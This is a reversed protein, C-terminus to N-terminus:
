SGEEATRSFVAERARILIMARKLRGAFDRRTEENGRGDVAWEKSEELAELMPLDEATGQSELADLALRLSDKTPPSQAVQHILRRSAEIPYRSLVSVAAQKSVSKQSESLMSELCELDSTLFDTLGDRHFVEHCAAIADIRSKVPKEEDRAYDYLAQHGAAQPLVALGHFGKQRLYANGEWHSMTEVALALGWNPRNVELGALCGFKVVAPVNSDSLVGQLTVRDQESGERSLAHSAVARLEPKQMEALVKRWLELPGDIESRMLLIFAQNTPYRKPPKEECPVPFSWPGKWLQEILYPQGKTKDKLVPAWGAEWRRAGGLPSADWTECETRHEMRANLVRAMLGAETSEQIALNENLPNSRTDLLQDRADRYDAGDKGALDRLSSTESAGEEAYSQRDSIVTLSLLALIVYIRLAKRMTPNGKM